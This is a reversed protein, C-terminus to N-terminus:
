IIHHLTHAAALLGTVCFPRSGSSTIHTPKLNLTVLAFPKFIQVVNVDSAINVM